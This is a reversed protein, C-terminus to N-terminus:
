AEPNKWALFEDSLLYEALFRIFKLKEDRVAMPAHREGPLELNFLGKYGIEKLSTVVEVWDIPYRSSFPMLHEDLIRNNDTIHLARLHKGAKLIFERQSQKAENRGNVLHLHGTDLCIALNESGLTDIIHLLREATHTEPVSGLNELCLMMDTGKVYSCVTSLAELRAAERQDVPLNNGGNFHIVANQIGAGLFLDIDRKLIDLSEPRLLTQEYSLHGQPFSFGHEKAYAAYAAGVSEMSGERGALKQVLFVSLEMNEFGASLYKDILAEPDLEPYYGSWLSIPFVM